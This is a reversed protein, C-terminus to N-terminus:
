ETCSLTMEDHDVETPMSAGTVAVAVTRSEGVLMTVTANACLFGRVIPPDATVGTAGVTVEGGAPGFHQFLEAVGDVLGMLDAPTLSSAGDLSPGVVDLARTSILCPPPPLPGTSLFAPTNVCVFYRITCTGSTPDLDCAPAGDVCAVAAGPTAGQVGLLAGCSDYPEGGGGYYYESVYCFGCGDHQDTNGDDCQEAPFNLAGDGCETDCTATCGDGSVTNGDDCEEGPDFRGNGCRWCESSDIKCVGNCDLSGGAAEFDACTLDGFDNGDCEEDGEKRGNSCAFCGSDDLSHCGPACALIGGHPCIAGGLEDGDCAEGPEVVGNGCTTCESTDFTCDACHLVGGDFGHETCSGPFVSIDCQEAGNVIGDGCRPGITTTTVPPIPRCHCDRTCEEGLACGRGGDCAEGNQPDPRGDGCETKSGVFAVASRKGFRVQGTALRCDDDFRVRLPLPGTGLGCGRLTATFVGGRIRKLRASRCGSDLQVRDGTITIADGFPSAHQVLLPEAPSVFVFRADGCPSTLSVAPGPAVLAVLVALWSRRAM